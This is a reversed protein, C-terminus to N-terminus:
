TRNPPNCQANYIFLRRWLRLNEIPFDAGVVRGIIRLSLIDERSVDLIILDAALGRAPAGAKTSLM